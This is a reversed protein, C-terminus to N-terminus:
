GAHNVVEDITLDLMKRGNDTLADRAGELTSQADDRLKRVNDLIIGLKKGEAVEMWDHFFASMYALAHFALFIGRLPRPDRRLPSTYTASHGPLILAGEAEARILWHHASEHVLTELIQERPGDLDSFVLGPLGACSGSRFRDGTHGYLPVVVKTISSIWAACEPLRSALAAGTSLFHIISARLQAQEDDTLDPQQAWSWNALDIMGEDLPLGVSDCWLDLDVLHSAERPAPRIRSALQALDHRGSEVPEGGDPGWIWETSDLTVTGPTLAHEAHAMAWVALRLDRGKTPTSTIACLLPHYLWSAERRAAEALQGPLDGPLGLSVEPEWQALRDAQVDFWSRSSIRWRWPNTAVSVTEVATM